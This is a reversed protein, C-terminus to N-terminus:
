RIEEPQGNILRYKSVIDADAGSGGPAGDRGFSTLAFGDNNRTYILPRNWGDTTENDYNRAFRCRTLHDRYITQRVGMRVSTVEM